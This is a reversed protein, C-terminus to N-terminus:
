SVESSKKVVGEGSGDLESGSRTKRLSGDAMVREAFGGGRWIDWGEDGAIERREDTTDLLAGIFRM